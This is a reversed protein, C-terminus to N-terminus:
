FLQVTDFTRCVSRTMLRVVLTNPKRLLPFVQHFGVTVQGPRDAPALGLHAFHDSFEHAHLRRRLVPSRHVAADGQNLPPDFGTAAPAPAAPLFRGSVQQNALKPRDPLRGLWQHQETM